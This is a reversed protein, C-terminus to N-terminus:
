WFYEELVTCLFHYIPLHLEQVLYTEDELVSICTDCYQRIKGGSRGTMAMVKMGQAKAMIAAHLVNEANGSTSIGWFLDGSVGYGKVQQAFVLASDVDNAFATSLAIHQSLNIAPITGQIHEALYAGRVKDVHILANQLDEDLTRKKVFSKMLEGVIHDADASSGGNGCILIKNGQEITQVLLAFVDSIQERNQELVPYRAVLSDLHMQFKIKM